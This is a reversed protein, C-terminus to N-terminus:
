ARFQPREYLGGALEILERHLEATREVSERLEEISGGLAVAVVGEAAVLREVLEGVIPPLASTDSM